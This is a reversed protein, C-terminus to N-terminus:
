VKYRAQLKQEQAQINTMMYHYVSSQGLLDARKIAFLMGMNERGIREVMEGIETESMKDINVDHYFILATVLTKEAPTLDFESAYKQFIEVSRDWHGYFHGVGQADLTFAQPKGVDHFLAVLRLLGGEVGAVVHLIHEYVDYIHWSNKQDFGKCAKLEPVLAFIANENEKLRDYIDQAQLLALLEDYNM